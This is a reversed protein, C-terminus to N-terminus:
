EVTDIIFKFCAEERDRKAQILEERDECYLRYSNKRRTIDQKRGSIATQLWKFLKALGKHYDAIEENELGELLKEVYPITQYAKVQQKREGYMQYDIM